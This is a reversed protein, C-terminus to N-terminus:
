LGESEDFKASDRESEHVSRMSMQIGESASLKESESLGAASDRQGGVSANLNVM